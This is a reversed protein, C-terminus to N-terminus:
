PTRLIFITPELIGQLLKSYSWGKSGQASSGGSALDTVLKEQSKGQQM